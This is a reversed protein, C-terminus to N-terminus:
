LQFNGPPAPVMRQLWSTARTVCVCRESGPHLINNAVGMHQCSHMLQTAHTAVVYEVVLGSISRPKQKRDINNNNKHKNPRGAEWVCLDISIQSVKALRDQDSERTKWSSRRKIPRFGDICHCGWLFNSQLKSSARQFSPRARPYSPCHM